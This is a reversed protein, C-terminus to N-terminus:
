TSRAVRVSGPKRARYHGITQQLASQVGLSSPLRQLQHFDALESDTITTISLVFCFTRRGGLVPRPELDRHPRSDRARRGHTGVENGPASQPTAPATRAGEPAGCTRDAPATVAATDQLETSSLFTLSVRYRMGSFLLPNKTSSVELILAARLSSLIRQDEPQTPEAPGDAGLPDAM